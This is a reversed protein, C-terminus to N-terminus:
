HTLELGVDIREDATRAQAIAGLLKLSQAQVARPLNLVALPDHGDGGSM